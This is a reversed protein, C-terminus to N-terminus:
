KQKGHKIGEMIKDLKQHLSKIEGDNIVKFDAKDICPQISQKVPDANYAERESKEKM